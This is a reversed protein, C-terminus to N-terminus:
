TLYLCALACRSVQCIGVHVISFVTSPCQQKSSYHSLVIVVLLLCALCLSICFDQHNATAALGHRAWEFLMCGAPCLGETTWAAGPRSGVLVLGFIIAIMELQLRVMPAAVATVAFYSATPVAIAVVIDLLLWTTLGWAFASHATYLLYDM